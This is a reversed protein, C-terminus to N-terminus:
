GLTLVAKGPYKRAILDAAVQAIDSWPREVSIHPALQGAAVLDALRRLGIAAPENGLEAFSTARRAIRTREGLRLRVRDGLHDVDDPGVNLQANGFRDVWLVQAAVADGDAFPLPIMGPQLTLPDVAPGLESLDVGACLHAAAPAFLDRGDFTAGPAALRYEPNTLEVVRNAGGVLGM